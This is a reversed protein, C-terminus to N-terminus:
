LDDLLGQTDTVQSQRAIWAPDVLVGFGPLDPLPDMLGDRVVPQVLPDDMPHVGTYPVGWEIPVDTHGLAGMVQSHIHPYMHTSLQNGHAKVQQAIGRLRTIGGNTTADVRNVDVADFRLLAQPHYSGGQEDGMAVPTSIGERIERVMQADGPPVIDEFWGIDLGDLRKGFEIADASTKHLFNADIGLWAEPYAERAAQLRAISEDRTPGIPLKFRRWGQDWLATIQDVTAQPSISPPYGVIGTVPMRERGGGLYATINQGAAKAALDWAACDVVSLARMGIGAAHVSNNSWLAKHFVAEPDTIPEGVYQPAITREVIAAIPGDRTLGYAFGTLGSEADIRVLFFERHRMIWTGFVIPVELEHLITVARVRVIRDVDPM